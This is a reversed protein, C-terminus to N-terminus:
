TSALVGAASLRLEVVVASHRAAITKIISFKRVRDTRAESTHCAKGTTRVLQRGINM